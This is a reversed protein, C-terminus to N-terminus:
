YKRSTHLITIIELIENQIRYIIVYDTNHVFFERTGERKGARGLEPNNKIIKICTNLRNMLKIFAEGYDILYEEINSLDKEARLTLKVEKIM